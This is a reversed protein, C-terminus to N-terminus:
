PSSPNSPGQKESLNAQLCTRSPRDFDAQNAGEGPTSGTFVALKPPELRFGDPGFTRSVNVTSLECDVFVSLPLVSFASLGPPWM